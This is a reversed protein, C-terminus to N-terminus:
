NIEYVNVLVGNQNFEYKKSLCSHKLSNTSLVHDLAKFKDALACPSISVQIVDVYLPTIEPELLDTWAFSIYSVGRNWAMESLGNPDLVQWTDPNPGILQQGSLSNIANAMSLADVSGSDSAWTSGPVYLDKLKEIVIGNTIGNTSKQLPNVSASILVSFITLLILGSIQLREVLLCFVVVFILIAAGAIRISGLRPVVQSLERGGVFTLLAALFGGLVALALPTRSNSAPSFEPKPISVYAFLLIAIIGFVSAARNPTVLSLIPISGFFAPMQISIWVFWILLIAAASVEIASFKTVKRRNVAIIILAAIALVSFSSSLESANSGVIEKSFNLVQLHPAGWTLFASVKEGVSRRQGPYITNQITSLASSNSIVFAGALVGFTVFITGLRVLSKKVGYTRIAFVIAPVLIMPAIVIVWPQYSTLLKFVSFASLFIVPMLYIPRLASKKMIILYLYAALSSFGIIPSIWLSWWANVPSTVILTTATIAVVAGVGIERLFLPLFILALLVPTWWVLAFEQDIGIGPIARPWITDLANLTNIVSDPDPYIFSTNPDSLPSTFNANGSKLLGLDWPTSRLYEDSRINRPEGFTGTAIQSSSVEHTQIFRLSSSTIGFLSIVVFIGLWGFIWIRLLFNEDLPQKM